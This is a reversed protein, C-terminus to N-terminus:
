ARTIACPTTFGCRMAATSRMLASPGTSYASSCWTVSSRPPTSVATGCPPKKKGECRDDSNEVRWVSKGTMLDVATLSGNSNLDIDMDVVPAFAYRGDSAAGYEVGGAEGGKGVRINWLVAGDNDPDLAYRMRDKTGLAIVDKGDTRTTLIPPAGIDRNGQGTPNEPSCNKREPDWWAECALHYIDQGGMQEPALGKVWRKKGTQMDLAMNSRVRGEARFAWNACGSEADLAYVWHNISGSYIRGDRVAVTNGVGSFASTVPM